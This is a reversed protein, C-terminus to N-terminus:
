PGAPKSPKDGAALREAIGEALGRLIHLRTTPEQSRAWELVVAPDGGPEPRSERQQPELLGPRRAGEHPDAFSDPDYDEAAIM